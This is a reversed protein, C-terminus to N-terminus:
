GAVVAALERLEPEGLRPSFLFPLETISGVTGERLRALQSDQSSRREAEEAVADVAPAAISRAGSGVAAIRKREAASFRDPYVGNAFIRDVAFSSGKPPDLLIAELEMSENVAMEEPRAVIAVGANDRDTIVDEIRKAQNALPGVRAIERFTRPTQLFGVGHGTAPADVVVMDYTRKADKVRRPKQTLEWVKGMTVMEPLGPTAAALYNFLTSRRLLGAMARVPMHTELYEGVMLDPDVSITWLGKALQREVTDSPRKGFLDPGREQSAIECVIVRKGRDAAALALAYAVTTKGVGGKGTM